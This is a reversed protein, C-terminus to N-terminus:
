SFSPRRPRVETTDGVIDVCECLSKLESNLKVLKSIPIQYQGNKKLGQPLKNDPVVDFSM